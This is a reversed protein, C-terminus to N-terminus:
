VRIKCLVAQIPSKTAMREADIKRMENSRTHEFIIEGLRKGCTSQLNKRAYDLTMQDENRLDAMILSSNNAISDRHRKLDFKGVEKM